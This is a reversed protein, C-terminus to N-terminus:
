KTVREGLNPYMAPFTTRVQLIYRECFIGPPLNYDMEYAVEETVNVSFSAARTASIKGYAENRLPMGITFSCYWTSAGGARKKIFELNAKAVQWGGGKGLGDDPVTTVFPFESPSFSVSTISGMSVCPNDIAVAALPGEPPPTLFDGTGGVGTGIPITESGGLGLGGSTNVWCEDPDVTNCALMLMLVSVIFILLRPM